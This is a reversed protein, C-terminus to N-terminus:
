KLERFKDATIKKAKVTISEKIKALVKQDEVQEELRSVQNRDALVRQAAEKVMDEPVNGIGYMAYQYTVFASAAEEIDKKEIKIGFKEVFKGRVLQWKFDDVFGAFDKEIDEKTIKGNNAVFLWRKLFDEPLSIGAKKVYYDRIDKTLRWEAEQKYEGELRETVEKDIEEDTKKEKKEDYYKKLSKSIEEKAKATIEINYLYVSDTKQAEIDFEPSLGLDFVFTYPEDSKWDIEPQKESSIPEGLIKMDKIEEGLKASIVDNVAEARVQEGYLKQILSAPVNGKRFGKFEAKRRCDALKKREAEAYDANEITLTLEVNLEDIQKKVAKM